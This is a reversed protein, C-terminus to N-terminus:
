FRKYRFYLLMAVPVIFLSAMILWFFIASDFPLHEFNMGGFGVIFSIPLFIVSIITLKKMTENLRNSVVSLYTDLASGLLDRETEVIEYLRSLHDYVDRFYLATKSDVMGYRTSALSNMLDRMPAIIRRMKILEQKYAFIRQLTEPTANNITEDELVDIEDDINDLIPFLDDVTRDVILYLLYDPGHKVEVGGESVRKEVDRLCGIPERHFTILYDSGLFAELEHDVIEGNVRELVHLSVFLYDDFPLVKARQDFTKVDEVTLPHFNYQQAVADIQEATPMEYDIWKFQARGKGLEIVHPSRRELGEGNSSAPLTPPAASTGELTEM